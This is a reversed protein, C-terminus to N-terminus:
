FRKSCPHIKQDKSHEQYQHMHSQDQFSQTLAPLALHLVFSHDDLLGLFSKKWEFVPGFELHAINQNHNM